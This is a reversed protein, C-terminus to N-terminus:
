VNTNYVKWFCEESGSGENICADYETLNITHPSPLELMLAMFFEKGYQSISGSMELERLGEIARWEKTQLENAKIYDCGFMQIEDISKM